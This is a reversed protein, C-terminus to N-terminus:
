NSSYVHVGHFSRVWSHLQKTILFIPCSMMVVHECTRTSVYLGTIACKHCPRALPFSEVLRRLKHETYFPRKAERSLFDHDNLWHRGLTFNCGLEVYMYGGNERTGICNGDPSQLSPQICLALRTFDSGTLTKHIMSLPSGRRAGSFSLRADGASRLM